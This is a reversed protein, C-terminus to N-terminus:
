CVQVSSQVDCFCESHLHCPRLPLHRNWCGCLHGQASKTSPTADSDLRRVAITPCPLLFTVSQRQGRKTLHLRAYLADANRAANLLEPHHPVKLVLEADYACLQYVQAQRLLASQHLHSM